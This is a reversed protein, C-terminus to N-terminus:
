KKFSNIKDQCTGVVDFCLQLLKQVIFSHFLKSLSNSELLLSTGLSKPKASPLRSRWASNGSNGSHPASLIGKTIMNIVRM